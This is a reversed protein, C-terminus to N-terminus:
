ANDVGDITLTFNDPLTSRLKNLTALSDTISPLGDLKSFGNGVLICGHTDNINNGSHILIASRGPVNQLEWVNSFRTGTHKHCQYVGTPVCSNNRENDNWPDECTVCLPHGDKILVGFTGQDSSRLRHLTIM